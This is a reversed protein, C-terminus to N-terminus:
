RESPMVVFRTPLLISAYRERAPPSAFAPARKGSAPEYLGVFVPYEGPVADHRIPLPHVDAVVQGKLWCTTPYRSRVPMEDHQAVREQDRDDTAVHIFAKYATDIPADSVREWYLTISGEGGAPAPTLTYARLAIAGTATFRADVRTAESPIEIYPYEQPPISFSLLPRLLTGQTATHLVLLALAGLAVGRSAFAPLILAAGAVVMPNFYLWVRGTEARAVHALSLVALTLWYALTIPLATGRWGRALILGVLPIGAMTVHDWPHWFVFPWYPFEIGLHSEFVVRFLAFPDLGSWAWVAVWVSAAGLASLIVAAVIRTRLALLQSRQVHQFLRVVAYVLAILAIPVAGFTVFTALSFAVGAWWAFRLKQERILREVLYLVVPTALAVGRDFQSVWLSLGPTLGYLGVAWAAAREDQLRRLWAFLPVAVLMASMIEVASGFWAAAVIPAPSAVSRLSHCSHARLPSAAVESWEPPLLRFLWAGATFILSLGPPHRMQHVPYSPAREAYRGVFDRVDEVFAGVTWYGGTDWGFTRRALGAVVDSEAALTVLVQLAASGILFLVAMGYKRAPSLVPSANRLLWWLLFAYLAAVGGIALAFLPPTSFDREWLVLVDRNPYFLLMGVYALTPM